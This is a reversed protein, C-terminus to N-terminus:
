VKTAATSNVKYTLWYFLPTYKKRNYHWPIHFRFVRIARRLRWQGLHIDHCNTLVRDSAQQKAMDRHKTEWDGTITDQLVPERQKSEQMMKKVQYHSPVHIQM